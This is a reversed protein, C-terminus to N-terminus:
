QQKPAVSRPWFLGALLGIVALSGAALAFAPWRFSWFPVRRASSTPPADPLQALIRARLEPRPVAQDVVSLKEGLRMMTEMERRCDPCDDLHGRVRAGEAASLERDLYAKLEDRIEHCGSM